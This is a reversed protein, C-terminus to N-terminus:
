ASCCHVLWRPVGAASRPPSPHLMSFYAVAILWVIGTTMNIDTEVLPSTLTAPAGLALGALLFLVATRYQGLVRDAAM